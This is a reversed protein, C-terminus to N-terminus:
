GGLDGWLGVVLGELFRLVDHGLIQVTVWERTARMTGQVYDGVMFRSSRFFVTEFM